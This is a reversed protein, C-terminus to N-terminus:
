EQDEGEEAKAETLVEPEATVEVEEEEVVEVEEEKRPPEVKVVM